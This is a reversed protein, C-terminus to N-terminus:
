EDRANLERLYRNYAALEDDEPVPPRPAPARRQRPAPVEAVATEASQQPTDAEAAQRRLKRIRWFMFAPFLGFLPWQLVYGLNQFTGSASSFREWQWWALGCCLALSVLCVGAIGLRRLTASPAPM